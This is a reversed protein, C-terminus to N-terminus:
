PPVHGDSGHEVDAMKTYSFRVTDYILKYLDRYLNSQLLFTEITMVLKSQYAFM